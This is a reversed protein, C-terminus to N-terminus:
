QMRKCRGSSEWWVVVALLLLRGSTWEDGTWQLWDLGDVHVAPLM